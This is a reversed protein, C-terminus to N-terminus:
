ALLLWRVRAITANAETLPRATRVLGDSSSPLRMTYMRMAVGRYRVSRFYPRCREHAVLSDLGILPVFGNLTGLRQTKEPM